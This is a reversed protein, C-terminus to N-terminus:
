SLQCLLPSKIGLNSTRNRWPGDLTLAEQKESMHWDQYLADGTFAYGGLSDM